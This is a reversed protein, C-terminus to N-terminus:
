RKPAWEKLFAMVKQPSHHDGEELEGSDKTTLQKGDADLIVIVPLGHETPHGYKLDTEKNHGDNVDVLVFVYNAQLEDGLEKDSHLLDHLRHCWICWNAGFQLFVRKNEKKAVALADAIQQAGDAHEDYIDPRAAKPSDAARVPPLPAVALLLFTGFLLLAPRLTKM